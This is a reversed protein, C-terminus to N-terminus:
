GFGGVKVSCNFIEKPDMKPSLRFLVTIGDGPQLFGSNELFGLRSTDLSSFFSFIQLNKM